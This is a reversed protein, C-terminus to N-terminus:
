RLLRGLDRHLLSAHRDPAERVLRAGVHVPGRTPLREGPDEAGREVAKREGGGHLERLLLPPLGGLLLLRLVLLRTRSLLLVLRRLLVLGRLLVLVLQLQRLRLRDIEREGSWAGSGFPAEDELSRADDGHAAVLHELAGVDDHGPVANR